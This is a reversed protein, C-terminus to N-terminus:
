IVRDTTEGHFSPAVLNTNPAVFLDYIGNVAGGKGFTYKYRVANDVRVLLTRSTASYTGDAMVTAAILSAAFFNM